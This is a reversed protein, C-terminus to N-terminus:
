AGSAKTDSPMQHIDLLITQSTTALMLEQKHKQQQQHSSKMPLHKVDLDKFCVVDQSMRDEEDEDLLNRSHFHHERRISLQVIQFLFKEM